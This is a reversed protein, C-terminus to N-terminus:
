QWERSFLFLFIGLVPRSNKAESAHLPLGLTAQSAPSHSIMQVAHPPRPEGLVPLCHSLFVLPLYAVKGNRFYHIDFVLM